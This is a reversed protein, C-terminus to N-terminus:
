NSQALLEQLQAITLGTVKMAFEFTAGEQLMKLALELAKEAKGEAKGEVKAMQENSTIYPM